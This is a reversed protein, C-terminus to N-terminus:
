GEWVHCEGFHGGFVRYQLLLKPDIAGFFFSIALRLHRTGTINLPKSDPEDADDPPQPPPIISLTVLGAYEHLGAHQSCPLSSLWLQLEDSAERLRGVSVLVSIYEM